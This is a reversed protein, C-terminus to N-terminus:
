DQSRKTRRDIKSAQKKRYNLLIFLFMHQQQTISHLWYPLIDTPFACLIFLLPICVRSASSHRYLQINIPILFLFFDMFCHPCRELHRLLSTHKKILDRGNKASRRWKRPSFLVQVIVSTVSSRGPFPKWGTTPLWPSRRFSFKGKTSQGGKESWYFYTNIRVNIARSTKLYLLSLIKVRRREQYLLSGFVLTTWWAAKALCRFM